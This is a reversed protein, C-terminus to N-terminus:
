IMWYIIMFFYIKSVCIIENIVIYVEVWYFEVSIVIKLNDSIILLLICLEYEIDYWFKYLCMRNENIKFFILVIGVFM